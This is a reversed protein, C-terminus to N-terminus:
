NEFVMTPIIRQAISIIKITMQAQGPKRVNRKQTANGTAMPM